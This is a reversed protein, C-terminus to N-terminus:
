HPRLSSISLPPSTYKEHNKKKKKLQDTSCDLSPSEFEFRLTNKYSTQKM